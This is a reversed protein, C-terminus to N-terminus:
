ITFEIDQMDKYHKELKDQVSRLEAWTEPMSEELSPYKEKREEESIGHSEAWRRSGV